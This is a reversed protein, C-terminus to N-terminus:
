ISYKLKFFTATDDPLWVYDPLYLGGNIWEFRHFIDKLSMRMNSYETFSDPNLVPTNAFKGSWYPRLDLRVLDFYIDDSMQTDRISM